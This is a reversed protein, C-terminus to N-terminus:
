ARENRAFNVGLRRSWIISANPRTRSSCTTTSGRLRSTPNRGIDAGTQIEDLVLPNFKCDGARDAHDDPRKPVCFSPSPQDNCRSCVSCQTQPHHTRRPPSAIPRPSRRMSASIAWFDGALGIQDKAAVIARVTLRAGGPDRDIRRGSKKQKEINRFASAGPTKSPTTSCPGITAATRPPATRRLLPRVERAESHGEM